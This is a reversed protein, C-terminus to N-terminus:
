LECNVYGLLMKVDVDRYTFLNRVENRFSPVEFGKVGYGM